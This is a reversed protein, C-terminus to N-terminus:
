RLIMRTSAKKVTIKKKIYYKDKYVPNTLYDVNTSRNEDMVTNIKPLVLRFIDWHLM